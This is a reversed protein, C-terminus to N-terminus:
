FTELEDLWEKRFEQESWRFGKSEAWEGYTTKSGKRIKNNAKEFVLIIEMDPNCERIALLKKRTDYDLKGKYEIHIKKKGAYVDFDPTYEQPKHQYNVTTTEYSYTVKQKMMEAAFRVEGISKMGALKALDKALKSCAKSIKRSKDRGKIGKVECEKALKAKLAEVEKEWRKMVTTPNLFKKGM